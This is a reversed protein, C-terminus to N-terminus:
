CLVHLFVSCFRVPMVPVALVSRIPFPANLSRSSWSLGGDASVHTWGADAPSIEGGGVICLQGTCAKAADMGSVDVPAGCAWTQGYDSSNCDSSGAIALFGSSNYVYNGAHWNGSSPILETWSAVSRGGTQTRWASAGSTSPMYGETSNAFEIPRGGWNSSDIVSDNTWTAGANYSFSIIGCSKDSGDVFGSLLYASANFVFAGYWYTPFSTDLLTTWTGGPASSVSTNLKLVVGAEGTVLAVVRNTAADLVAHVDTLVLEGTLPITNRTWTLGLGLAVSSFFLYFIRLM